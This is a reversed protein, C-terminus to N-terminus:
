ITVVETCAMIATAIYRWHEDNGRCGIMRVMEQKIHHIGRM